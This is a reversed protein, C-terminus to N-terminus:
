PKWPTWGRGAAEDPYGPAFFEYHTCVNCVFVRLLTPSLFVGREDLRALQAVGAVSESEYVGKGCIRCHLSLKGSRDVLPTSREMDSLTQDIVTLLDQASGLCNEPFEVICKDLILNIFQMHENNPFTTTLDFQAKNHYWLPLKLRGAIMCWLLKGLMYVDFNPEVKELREGLDGWTPMYTRSGVRENTCTLRERQEPLYVIGFDGLVLQGGEHIFVNAPKIDRHVINEKHLAAVAEVLSRFAKLAGLANGKFTNPYMEITGGPILETVMWKEEENADLLKILGPRNERLVAVENKLRGMAEGAEPGSTPIDFVKLAGMESPLDPRAFSLSAEAFEPLRNRDLFLRLSEVCKLREAVRAPTRAKYVTGQGGSGLPPEIREWGGFKATGTEM